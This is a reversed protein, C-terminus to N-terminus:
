FTSAPEGLVGFQRDETHSAVLQRQADASM